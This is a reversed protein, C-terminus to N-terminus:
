PKAGAPPNQTLADIVRGAWQAEARHMEIGHRLAHEAYVSLGSSLAALQQELEPIYAEVEAAFERLVRMAEGHGIINGAFVFRLHIAGIGQVIEERTVPQSLWAVLTREGAPTLRFVRRPRLTDQKQTEGRILGTEELRKLAPYVTGPSSGFHAMATTSFTKLLDYGSMPQPAILGLIALRFTTPAQESM